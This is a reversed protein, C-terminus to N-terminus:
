KKTVPHLKSFYGLSIFEKLEEISYIQVQNEEEGMPAFVLDGGWYGVFQYFLEKGKVKYIDGKKMKM